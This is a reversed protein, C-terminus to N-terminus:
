SFSSSWFFLKCRHSSNQFNFHWDHKVDLVRPNCTQDWSNLPEYVGIFQDRRHGLSMKNHNLQWNALTSWFCINSKIAAVLKFLIITLIVCVGAHSWSQNANPRFRWLILRWLQYQFSSSILQVVGRLDIIRDMLFSDPVTASTQNSLYM